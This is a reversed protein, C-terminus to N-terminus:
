LRLLWIIITSVVCALLFLWIGSGSNQQESM